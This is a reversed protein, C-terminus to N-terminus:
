ALLARAEFAKLTVRATPGYTTLDDRLEPFLEFIEERVEEALVGMGQKGPHFSESPCGEAFIIEHTDFMLHFYEVQGGEIRRITDDNILHVAPSLIESEGFLVEAKWGTLLMRHQQSVRLEQTNGLANPAIAVPAFKGFAAVITNGIWRIAQPGHDLTEVLDGLKLREILVEGKPTLIQTGATFCTVFEWTERSTTLGSYTNGLLSDLSISRIADAELATQDSNASYEPAIYSNGSTDQFVVASITATSGDTYTITANYIATGDFSRPPGGDIRFRDNSSNDMDYVSGPNGVRSVEVFDDVLANGVGGFTMGVLASANEAVDNGETTDIDALNGISIANFTTPM